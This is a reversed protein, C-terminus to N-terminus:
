ARGAAGGAPLPPGRYRLHRIATLLRRGARATSQPSTRGASSRSTSSAGTSVSWRRISMPGYLVEIGLQQLDTAYPELRALNDPPFTVGHGLDVLIQLIAAMRVSGADQYSRPVIRDVVLIRSGRRRDRARHLLLLDSPRQRRSPTGTANSSSRM